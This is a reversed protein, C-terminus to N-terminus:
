AATLPLKRSIDDAFGVTEELTHKRIFYSLATMKSLYQVLPSLTVEVTCTFDSSEATRASAQMTWRVQVTVPVLHLLYARSNDSRLEVYSPEARVERYHQIILAGGMSEVNITGRTGGDNFTGAALHARATSQYDSDSLNFIWDALNIRDIPANLVTNGIYKTTIGM